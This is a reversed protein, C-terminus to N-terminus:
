LNSKELPFVGGRRGLNTEKVIGAETGKVFTCGEQTVENGKGVL